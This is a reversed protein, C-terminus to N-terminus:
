SNKRVSEVGVGGGRLLKGTMEVTSHALTRARQELPM